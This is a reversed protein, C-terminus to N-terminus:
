VPETLIRFRITGRRTEGDLEAAIDTGVHRCFVLVQNEVPFDTEHLADHVAALIRKVERYGPARSFVHVAAVLESGYFEQTELPRATMDGVVVYPFPTDPLAHDLVSDAGAALLPVLGGDEALVGYLAAQVDWLSHATM